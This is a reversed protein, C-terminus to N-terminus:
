VRVPIDIRPTLPELITRYRSVVRDYLDPVKPARITVVLAYKIREGSTTAHGALRTQYHVDFVPDHLSSALMGKRAHLVTEWKHANDRLSRESDYDSQRFFSGSKPHVGGDKPRVQSHPRFTIDLGSRTYNSPDQPDTASAICFTACIEVKCNPLQQPLPIRARM